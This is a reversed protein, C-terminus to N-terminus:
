LSLIAEGKRKIYCLQNGAHFGTFDGLTLDNGKWSYKQSLGCLPLSEKQSHSGEPSQVVLGLTDHISLPVSAEWGHKWTGSEQELVKRGTEPPWGQEAKM